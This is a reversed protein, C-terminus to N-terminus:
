AIEPPTAPMKDATQGVGPVAPDSAPITPDAAFFQPALGSFHWAATDLHLLRTMAAALRDAFDQANAAIFPREIRLKRRGTTYDIGMDFGVVPVRTQAALNAMGAPLRVPRGCVTTQLTSSTMSAPVDYLAVVVRGASLASRIGASAGGTYIIPAGGAREVTRNRWKAYRHAVWDHGFQNPDIRAAVFHAALGREHMDALAWLGAGWHFTMAIFPGKEPWVGAVDVFRRFWRQSRTNMLLMDCHDVLRTLRYRRDWASDRDIPAITAAGHRAESTAQRYLARDRAIRDLLRFGATWPLAAGLAPWLM